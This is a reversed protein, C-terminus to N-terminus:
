AKYVNTLTGGFDIPLEFMWGSEGDLVIDEKIDSPTIIAFDSPDM